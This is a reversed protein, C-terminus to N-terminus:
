VQKKLAEEKRQAMVQAMQEDYQQQRERQQRKKEMQRFTEAKQALLDQL